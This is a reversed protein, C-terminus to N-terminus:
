KFYDIYDKMFGELTRAPKKLIDEVDTSVFETKGERQSEDYALFTEVAWQPMGSHEMQQRVEDITLPVFEVKEKIIRSIADAVQKYNVAMMSTLLYTKGKHKESETLVKFAVETIDRRDVHARKGDGTAEFIKRERKVSQALEGLWNQMIGNPRLMTWGIGSTKLYEEVQGHVKPIHLHSNRDAAGSSLKVIHEVSLERAVDIVNNQEMVFDSSQGSLLFVIKSNEMTKYLSKKDAMDAEVWEVSPMTFAKNRNRTVAVTLINGISLYSLLEKGIKGTAGFVTINRKNEM